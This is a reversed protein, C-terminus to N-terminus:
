QFRRAAAALNGKALLEILADRDLNAAAQPLIEEGRDGDRRGGVHLADRRGGIERAPKRCSATGRQLRGARRPSPEDGRHRPTHSRDHSRRLPDGAGSAAARGATQILVDGLPSGGTPTSSRSSRYRSSRAERLLNIGVLVDVKQLRLARLIEIRQITEIDLIYRVCVTQFLYETLDETM